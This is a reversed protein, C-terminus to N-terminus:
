SKKRRIAVIGLLGVGFLVMTAPEPIAGGPVPAPEGKFPTDNTQGTRWVEGGNIASVTGYVPSLPSAYWFVNTEHRPPKFFTFLVSTPTVIASTGGSAPFPNFCYDEPTLNDYTGGPGFVDGAPCDGEEEDGPFAVPEAQTDSDAPTGLLHSPYMGAIGVDLDANVGGPTLDGATIVSGFPVGFTISSLTTGAPVPDDVGDGDVDVLFFGSFTNTNEGQYLYVWSDAPIAKGNDGVVGIWGAFAADSTHGVIWDINLAATNASASGDTAIDTEGMTGSTTLSSAPPIPGAVAMSVFVFMAAASLLATVSKHKM